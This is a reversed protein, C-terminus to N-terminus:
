AFQLSVSGDASAFSTGTAFNNHFSLARRTPREVPQASVFGLVVSAGSEAGSLVAMWTASHRASWTNDSAGGCTNSSWTPRASAAGSASQCFRGSMPGKVRGNRADITARARKTWSVTSRSTARPTM